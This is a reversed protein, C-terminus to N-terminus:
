RQEGTGRRGAPKVPPRIPCAPALGLGAHDEAFSEDTVPLRCLTEQFGVAQSMGTEEGGPARQIEHAPLGPPGM